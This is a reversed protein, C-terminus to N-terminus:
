DVVTGTLPIVGDYSLARKSGIRAVVHDPLRVKEQSIVGCYAGPGLQIPEARLDVERGEGGIVGKAGVRIDYGSAELSARDFTEKSILWGVGVEAEIESDALVGSTPAGFLGGQNAKDSM